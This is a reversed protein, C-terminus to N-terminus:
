SPGASNLLARLEEAREIWGPMGISQFAAIASRLLQNAQRRDGPEGRTCRMRVEDLDTIARLPRAGQEDLVDRAADFWTTAEEFREQLVCIRAMSLRADTSPFRFDPELTKERLQKELLTSWDSSDLAWMAGVASNVMLTFSTMWGPSNVMGPLGAELMRRADEARGALAFVEAGVCMATPMLWKSGDDVGLVLEEFVPVLEDFGTGEVQAIESRMSARVNRFAASTPLGELRRESEEFTARAEDVRGLAAQLRGITSLYFYAGAVEAHSESAEVEERLRAIAQEYEGAWLALFVATDSARELIEARSEFALGVLAFSNKRASELSSWNELAAVTAQRHEPTDLPHGTQASDRWLEILRLRAWTLPDDRSVMRHARDSLDWALDAAGWAVGTVINVLYGAAAGRGEREEVLAAAEAAVRAADSTAGGFALALGYRELLEFRSPDGPPQLELAMEVFAAEDEWAAVSAARDAAIQCYPVGAEAGSLEASARYHRAIREAHDATLAGYTAILAEALRRHLRLRRAPSQEFYLVRRTLDHAFGYVEPDDTTAIINADLSEDLGDLAAAEGLQAARRIVEFHFTGRAASAVTLLERAAPGLVALRQSLVQRVGAPLSVSELRLEHQWEGEEDVLSGEELLHRLIERAFFPNGGTESQVDQVFGAPLPRGSLTELLLATENESLGDLRIPARREGVQQLSALRPEEPTAHQDDRLAGLLLWGGTAARRAVNHTLSLTAPDAWHLDDLLIVLPASAALRSFLTTTAEFLRLRDEEKPSVPGKPEMATGTPQQSVRALVDADASSGSWSSDAAPLHRTSAILEAFPGYPSAWVGQSCGGRLVCAGRSSAFHAVEDLLHTKGIGEEGAIWVADGRGREAAEVAAQLAALESERGFFPARRSGAPASELPRVPERAPGAVEEVEAVFRYGRGRVSRIFHQVGGDGGLARRAHRVAQGLSTEGIATGKWLLEHLEARSVVRDRQRVLHLLLSLAQDGIPVREGLRCLELGPEDLEFEDFAFRM